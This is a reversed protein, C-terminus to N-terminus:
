NLIRRTQFEVTTEEPPIIRAPTIPPWEPLNAAGCDRPILYSSAIGIWSRLKNRSRHLHAADAALRDHAWEKAHLVKTDRASMEEHKHWNALELLCLWSSSHPKKRAHIILPSSSKADVCGVCVFVGQRYMHVPDCLMAHTCCTRMSLFCCRKFDAHKGPLKNRFDSVLCSHIFIQAELFLKWFM